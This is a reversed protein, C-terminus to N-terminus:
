AARSASTSWRARWRSRTPRIICVDGKFDVFSRPDFAKPDVITSNINTFIKFEDAIRVDYGYSSLGYSIVGDRVQQECFARDHRARAGHAQDVQGGEGGNIGGAHAPAVAAVPLRARVGEGRRRAGGAAAGGRSLGAAVRARLPFAGRGEEQSGARFITGLLLHAEPNDDDEQLAARLEEEAQRTWGANKLYVRARLLRMRQRVKGEAMPLAGYLLGVAEWTKGEGLMHEADELAREASWGDTPSRGTGGGAAGAPCEAARPLRTSWAVTPTRCCTMPVSVRQFVEELKERLDSLGPHHHTDPHFLRALRYYAAKVQELSASPPLGLVDFHNRVHLAKHAELVASVSPNWPCRAPAASSIYEIIGTCLLGFLSREVELQPLPVIEIVGRATTLGDVRSM